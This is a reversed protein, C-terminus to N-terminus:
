LAPLGLNLCPMFHAYHYITIATGGFYYYYLLHQPVGTLCFSHEFYLYNIQYIRYLFPPFCTTLLLDRLFM